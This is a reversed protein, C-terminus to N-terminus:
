LGFSLKVNHNHFIFFVKAKDIGSVIRLFNPFKTVFISFTLYYKNKFCKKLLGEVCNAM